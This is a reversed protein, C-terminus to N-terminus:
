LTRRVIDFLGAVPTPTLTYQSGTRWEVALRNLHDAVSLARRYSLGAHIRTATTM